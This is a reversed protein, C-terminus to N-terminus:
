VPLRELWEMLQGSESGDPPEGAVALAHALEGTEGAAGAFAQGWAVAALLATRVPAGALAARAHAAARQAGDDLTAAAADRERSCLNRLVGLAAPPGGVDTPDSCLHPLMICLRAVGGALVLADAAEAAREGDGADGDTAQLLAPLLFRLPFDSVAVRDDDDDGGGDDTSGCLVPLLALLRARHADPVQALFAGL